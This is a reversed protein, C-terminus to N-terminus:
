RGTGRAARQSHCVCNGRKYLGADHLALFADDLWEARKQCASQVRVAVSISPSLTLTAHWWGPPVALTDGPHLDVTANPLALFAPFRAEVRARAAADSALPPGGLFPRADIQSLEAGYNYKASPYLAARASPPWLVVRKVGFVQHLFAPSADYHIGTGVGAGGLWFASEVVSVESPNLPLYPFWLVDAWVRAKSPAVLQSIRARAARVAASGEAAREADAMAVRRASAEEGGEGGEGGEDEDDDELFSSEQLYGPQAGPRPSVVVEDIFARMPMQEIRTPSAWDLASSSRTGWYYVEVDRSRYHERFYQPTWRSLAPWGDMLGSLVVPARAFRAAYARDFEGNAGLPLARAPVTRWWLEDVAPSHWDISWCRSSTFRALISAAALMPLACLLALRAARRRRMSRATSQGM